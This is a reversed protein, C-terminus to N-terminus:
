TAPSRAIKLPMRRSVGPVVSVISTLLPTSRTSGNQCHGSAAASSVIDRSSYGTLRAARRVAAVCDADFRLEPQEWIRQMAVGLGLPDCIAALAGRFEEEMEHALQSRHFFRANLSRLYALLKM